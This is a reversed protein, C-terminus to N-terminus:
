HIKTCTSMLSRNGLGEEKLIAHTHFTHIFTQTQPLAHAHCQVARTHLKSPLRKMLEM